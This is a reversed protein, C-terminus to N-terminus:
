WNQIFREVGCNKSEGVIGVRVDHLLEGLVGFFRNGVIVSSLKQWQVPSHRVTRAKQVEADKGVKQLWGTLFQKPALDISLFKSPEVHHIVLAKNLFHRNEFHMLRPARRSAIEPGAEIPAAFCSIWFRCRTFVFRPDVNQTDVDIRSDGLFGLEVGLGRHTKFAQNIACSNEAEIKGTGEPDLRDREVRAFGNGKILVGVDCFLFDLTVTHVSENNNQRPSQPGALFDYQSKSVSSVSKLPGGVTDEINPAASGPIWVYSRLICRSEVQYEMVRRCVSEDSCTALDAFPIFGSPAM